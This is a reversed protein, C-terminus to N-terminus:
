LFHMLDSQLGIQGRRSAALHAAELLVCVSLWHNEKRIKDFQYQNCGLEKRIDSFRVGRSKLERLVAKATPTQTM